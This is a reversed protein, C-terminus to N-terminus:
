AKVLYYPPLPSRFVTPDSPDNLMILCQCADVLMTAPRHMFSGPAQLRLQLRLQLEVGSPAHALHNLTSTLKALFPLLPRGFISLSSRSYRQFMLEQNAPKSSWKYRLLRAVHTTNQSLPTTSLLTPSAILLADPRSPLADNDYM